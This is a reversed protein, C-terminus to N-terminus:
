RSVHKVTDEDFWVPRSGTERHPNCWDLPHDYSCCCVNEDGAWHEYAYQMLFMHATVQALIPLLPNDKGAEEIITEMQQESLSNSYYQEPVADILEAHRRWYREHEDM